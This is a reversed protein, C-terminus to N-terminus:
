GNLAAFTGAVTDRSAGTALLQRLLIRAKFPDLFGANLLGRQQLDHESGPFGYSAHHVAGAGARSALVVPIREAYEGLLEATGAPVHGVGFAAVVL